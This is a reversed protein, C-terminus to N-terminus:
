SVSATNVLQTTYHCLVTCRWEVQKKGGMKRMWLTTAEPNGTQKLKLGHQRGILFFFFTIVLGNLMIFM